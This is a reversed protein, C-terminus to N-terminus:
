LIRKKVPLPILVKAIDNPFWRRTGDALRVCTHTERFRENMRRTTEKGKPSHRYAKQAEGKHAAYYAHRYAKPDDCAHVGLEAGCRDYSHRNKCNESPTVIRLNDVSNLSKDRNIHDIQMGDPIPFQLFTEAVLRHVSYSKGRIDFKRYGKDSLYGYTLIGSPPIIGGDERMVIDLIPHKRTRM